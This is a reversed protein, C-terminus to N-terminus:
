EARPRKKPSRNSKSTEKSEEKQIQTRVREKAFLQRRMNALGERRNLLGWDCINNNWRRSENIANSARCLTQKVLNMHYRVAGNEKVEAFHVYVTYTEATTTSSFLFTEFDPGPNRFATNFAYERTERACKVLISGGRRAQLQLQRLNGDKGKGEMLFFPHHLGPAVNLLDLIRGDLQLNDEPGDLFDDRFGFLADPKPNEFGKGDGKQLAKAMQREFGQDEYANPLFGCVFLKDRTMGLGITYWEEADDVGEPAKSGVEKTTFPDELKCAAIARALEPKPTFTPKSIQPLIWGFFTGENQSNYWHYERQFRRVSSENVASLRGPDVISMIHDKFATYKPHHFVPDEFLIGHQRMRQELQAPTSAAVVAQTKTSSAESTSTAEQQHSSATTLSSSPISKPPSLPEEVYYDMGVILNYPEYSTESTQYSDRRRKRSKALPVSVGPLSELWAKVGPHNRSSLLSTPPPFDSPHDRSQALSARPSPLGIGTM